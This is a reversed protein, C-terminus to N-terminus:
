GITVTKGGAANDSESYPIANVTVQSLYNYGSDPIVVQAEASPTVTKSQPKAGETGSMSGAVGLISVGSRINSPILKDKETPDISVKGTGSHYGQSITYVEDKKLIVGAVGGRNPMTGTVKAGKVYAVKDQLINEAAATADGTCADYDCAGTIETGDASHAKAGKLLNDPTVTDGTLDLLVNVGAKTNMVVKNVAM